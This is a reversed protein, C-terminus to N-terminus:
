AENIERDIDELGKEIEDIEMLAGNVIDRQSILTNYEELSGIGQESFSQVVEDYEQASSNFESVLESSPYWEDFKILTKDFETLKQNTENCLEDFKVKLYNISDLIQKDEVENLSDILDFSIPSNIMEKSNHIIVKLESYLKEIGSKKTMVKQYKESLVSHNSSEILKIKHNIDLSQGLLINKNSIKARKERQKSYLAKLHSVAVEWEM